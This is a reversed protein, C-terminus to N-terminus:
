KGWPIAFGFGPSVNVGALPIGSPGNVKNVQAGAFFTGPIKEAWDTRNFIRSPLYFLYKTPTTLMVGGGYTFGVSDTGTAAGAQGIVWASVPGIYGMPKALGGVFTNTTRTATVGTWSYVGGISDTLKNAMGFFVNTPSAQKATWGSGTFLVAKPLDQALASLALALLLTLKM